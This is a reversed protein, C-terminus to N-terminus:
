ELYWYRPPGAEVSCRSHSSALVRCLARVRTSTHLTLRRASRAGRRRKAMQQLQVQHRQPRKLPRTPHLHKPQPKPPLPLLLPLWPSSTASRSCALLQRYVPHLPSHRASSYVEQSAHPRTQCEGCVRRTKTSTYVKNRGGPPAPIYLPCYANRHCCIRGRTAGGM